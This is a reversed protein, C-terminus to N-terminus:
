KRKRGRQGRGRGNSSNRKNSSGRRGNNSNNRNNNSNNSNNSLNEIATNEDISLEGESLSTLDGKIINDSVYHDKNWTKYALKMYAGIVNVFGKRKTSDEEMELAKNILKQVNHGYHRFKAESKPYEVREPKREHDERVPIIGDPPVVDIDYDAIQFVDNWLKIKYDEVNRNQPYLQMMLNVVKAIFAQREEKDEITRAYRILKQINRGYEPMMLADRSSNYVMMLDNSM